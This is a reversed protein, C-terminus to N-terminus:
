IIWNKQEWWIKCIVKDAEIMNDTYDFNRKASLHKRTEGGTVSCKGCCPDYHWHTGGNSCEIDCTRRLEALKGSNMFRNGNIRHVNTSHEGNHEKNKMCYAGCGPCKKKCRLSDKSDNFQFSTIVIANDTEEINKHLKVESNRKEILIGNNTVLACDDDLFLTTLISKIWSLVSIGSWRRPILSYQHMLYEIQDSQVTDKVSFESFYTRTNFKVNHNIGESVLRFVDIRGEFLKSGTLRKKAFNIYKSYEQIELQSDLILVDSIGLLFALCKIKEVQSGRNETFLYLYNETKYHALSIFIGSTIDQYVFSDFFRSVFAATQPTGIVALVKIEKIRTIISEILGFDILDYVQQYLDTSDELLKAYFDNQHLYPVINCNKFDCVKVFYNEYALHSLNTPTQPLATIQTFSKLYHLPFYKNMNSIYELTSPDQLSLHLTHRELQKLNFLIDINLLTKPGQAVFETSLELNEYNLMSLEKAKAEEELNRVSESESITVLTSKSNRYTFVQLDGDNIIHFHQCDTEFSTILKFQQDYLNILNNIKLGIIKDDDSACIQSVPGNIKMKLCYRKLFSFLYLENSENYFLLQNTKEFFVPSNIERLCGYPEKYRLKDKGYLLVSIRGKTNDIIITSKMSSGEAVIVLQSYTKVLEYRRNDLYWYLEYKSSHPDYFLLIYSKNSYKIQVLQLDTKHHLKLSESSSLEPKIKLAFSSIAVLIEWSRPVKKLSKLYERLNYEATAIDDNKLKQYEKFYGDVVVSIKRMNGMSSDKLFDYVHKKMSNNIDELTLNHNNLLDALFGDLVQSFDKKAVLFVSISPKIQDENLLFNIIVEYLGKIRNNWSEKLASKVEFIKDSLKNSDLELFNLQALTHRFSEVLAVITIDTKWSAELQVDKILKTYIEQYKKDSVEALKKNLTWALSSRFPIADSSLSLDTVATSIEKFKSDKTINMHTRYNLKSLSYRLELPASIKDQNTILDMPSTLFIESSLRALKLLGLLREQLSQNNITFTVVLLSNASYFNFGLAVEIECDLLKRLESSIDSALGYLCLISSEKFELPINPYEGVLEM